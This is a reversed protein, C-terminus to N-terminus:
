TGGFTPGTPYAKPASQGFGGMMGYGILQGGFQALNGGQQARIGAANLAGQTQNNQNGVAINAVASPDLGVVPPAISQGYAAAALDQQRLNNYYSNLMGFSNLYNNNNAQDVAFNRDFISTARNLGLAERNAEQPALGAANAFRQQEVGYSTLGLDRAALDRGLGLRGSTTGATAAGRRTAENRQDLSLKGGLALDSRAKAIAEQLLPTNIEPANFGGSIPQGFRSMLFDAGAAQAANGGIGNLVANNAATRLQPVEPTLQHELAASDLANQKAIARTQQDLAGIDIHSKAAADAASKAAKSQQSIGYASTAAGAIAAGALVGTAGSM